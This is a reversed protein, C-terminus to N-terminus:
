MKNKLAVTIATVHEAANGVIPLIILGIFAEKVSGQEVVENISDAVFEACLAVLGTSVVLLVVAALTSLRGHDEDNTHQTEEVGTGGTLSMLSIQAPVMAGPPRVPNMQGLRDPLSNTR